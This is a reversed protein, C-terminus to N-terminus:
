PVTKIGSVSGVSNRPSTELEEENDTIIEEEDSDIFVTGVSLPRPQPPRPPRLLKFQYLAPNAQDKETMAPACHDVSTQAITLPQFLIFSM